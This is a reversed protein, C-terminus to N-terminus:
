VQRWPPGEKNGLGKVLFFNPHFELFANNDAALCHVSVLNKCAHPVHLVNKLYLDRSPTSITAQGIHNITMDAGSATKIQDPAMTSM